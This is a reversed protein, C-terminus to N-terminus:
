NKEKKKKLWGREGDNLHPYNIESKLNEIRLHLAELEEESRCESKPHSQHKKRKLAEIRLATLRWPEKPSSYCDEYIHTLEAICLRFPDVM